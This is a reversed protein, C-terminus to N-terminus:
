DSTAYANATAITNEERAIAEHTPVVLHAKGVDLTEHRTRQIDEVRPVKCVYLPELLAETVHPM